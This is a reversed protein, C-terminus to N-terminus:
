QGVRASERTTSGPPARHVVAVLYDAGVPALDYGGFECQVVLGSAEVHARFDAVPIVAAIAARLQARYSRTM